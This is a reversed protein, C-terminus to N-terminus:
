EDDSKDERFRESKNKQRFDDMDEDDDERNRKNNGTEITNDYNTQAGSPVQTLNSYTEKQLEDREEEQRKQEAANWGGRGADYEERYEDRVQGGSKGRGYQRGSKFGPDIDARIIRDDLKTGSIYKVADLADDVFCFGCPTKKNKDLGMIIRKVEGAKSFLQYIQEETTYFALNGLYLTASTSMLTKWEEDSGQFSKDKYNTQMGLTPCISTM